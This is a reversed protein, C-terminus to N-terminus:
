LLSKISIGSTPDHILHVRNEGNWGLLRRLYHIEGLNRLGVTLEGFVDRWSQLCYISMGM